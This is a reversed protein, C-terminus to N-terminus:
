SFIVFRDPKLSMLFTFTKEWAPGLPYIRVNELPDVIM